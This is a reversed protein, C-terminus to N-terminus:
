VLLSYNFYFNLVINANILQSRRPLSFRNDTYKRKPTHVFRGAGVIGCWRQLRCISNLGTFPPFGWNWCWHLVFTPVCTQFRNLFEFWGFFFFFSFLSTKHTVRVRVGLYLNMIKETKRRLERLREKAKPSQQVIARRSDNDSMDREWRRVLWWSVAESGGAVGGTVGHRWEGDRM